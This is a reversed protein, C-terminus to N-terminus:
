GEKNKKQGERNKELNERVKQTIEEPSLAEEVNYPGISTRRLSTLYGGTNLERALDRAISRIYTGKSCEIYFDIEPLRVEKIEFHSIHADRPNLEIEKGKRALEYSRQGKKKVASYTPPIQSIHGMFAKSAERIQEENLHDVPHSEEEQTDADISPTEAGLKITGSYGKELNQFSEIQKTAKGSCIILLGTAMPDLTGAHGFKKEPLRAKLFRIVDFSTWGQPKDALLIEGKKLDIAEAREAKGIVLKRNEQM